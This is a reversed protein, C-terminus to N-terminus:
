ISIPRHYRNNLRSSRSNFDFRIDGHDVIPMSNVALINDHSQLGAKEAPGGPFTLIVTLYDKGDVVTGLIGIGVFKYKGNTEADVDSVEAPDFYTSHDDGLRIVLENMLMYFEADTLGSNIIERYEEQIADWDLGNFDQYM